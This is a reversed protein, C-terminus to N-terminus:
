LVRKNLKMVDRMEIDVNEADREPITEPVGNILYNYENILWAIDKKFGLCSNTAMLAYVRALFEDERTIVDKDKYIRLDGLHILHPFNPNAMLNKHRYYDADSWKRNYPGGAQRIRDEDKWKRSGATHTGGLRNCYKLSAYIGSHQHTGKPKGNVSDITGGVCTQPTQQYHVLHRPQVIFNDQNWFTYLRSMTEQSLMVFGPNWKSYGGTYLQSNQAVVQAHSSGRFGSVTTGPFDPSGWKAEKLFHATEHITTNLDDLSGGAAPSSMAITMSDQNTQTTGGSTFGRLFTNNNMDLRKIKGALRDDVWTLDGPEIGFEYDIIYFPIKKVEVGGNVETLYKSAPPDWSDISQKLETLNIYKNAYGHELATKISKIFQNTLHNSGSRFVSVRGGHRIPDAYYHQYVKVVTNVSGIPKQLLQDQHFKDFNLQTDIVVGGFIVDETIAPAMKTSIDIPVTYLSSGRSNPSSGRWTLHEIYKEGGLVEIKSWLSTLVQDVTTGEDVWTCPVSAWGTGKTQANLVLNFDPIAKRKEETDAKAVIDHIRAEERTRVTQLDTMKIEEISDSVVLNGEADKSTTIAPNYVTYVHEDDGIFVDNSGSASANPVWSGHGGTADDKRHVELDNIFVNSSGGVAPDGCSTTDGIRVTNQDNTIVDASGTVYSTTHFPNPTPSDHGVHTDVGVRTVAAM